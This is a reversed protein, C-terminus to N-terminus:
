DPTKRSPGVSIAEASYIVLRAQKAGLSEEGQLWQRLVEVMERERIIPGLATNIPRGGPKMGVILEGTILGTSEKLLPAHISVADSTAFLRPLDALEVNATFLPLYM